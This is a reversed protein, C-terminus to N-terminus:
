DPLRIPKPFDLVFIIDRDDFDFVAISSGIELFGMVFGRGEGNREEGGGGGGVGGGSSWFAIITNRGWVSIGDVGREPVWNCRLHISSTGM